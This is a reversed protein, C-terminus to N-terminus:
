YAISTTYGRGGKCYRTIQDQVSMPQDDKSCFCKRSSLDASWISPNAEFVTLIRLEWKKGPMPREGYLCAVVIHRKDYESEGAVLIHYPHMHFMRKEDDTFEGHHHRIDQWEVPQYCELVESVAQWSINREALRQEAHKTWAFWHDRVLDEYDGLIRPMNQQMRERMSQAKRSCLGPNRCETHQRSSIVYAVMYFVLGKM